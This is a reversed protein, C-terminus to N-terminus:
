FTLLTYGDDILLAAVGQTDAGDSIIKVIFAANSMTVRIFTKPSLM